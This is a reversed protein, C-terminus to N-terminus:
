RVIKFIVPNKVQVKSVRHTLFFFFSFVLHFHPILFVNMGTATLWMYVTSEM